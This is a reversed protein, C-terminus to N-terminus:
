TFNSCSKAPLYLLKKPTNEYISIYGLYCVRGSRLGDASNGPLICLNQFDRALKREAKLEHTVQKVRLKLM